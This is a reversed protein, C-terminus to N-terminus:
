SRKYRKIEKYIGTGEGVRKQRIEKSFELEYNLFKNCSKGGYEWGTLQARKHPGLADKHEIAASM